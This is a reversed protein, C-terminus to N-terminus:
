AVGELDQSLDASAFDPMDGDQGVLAVGNPVRAPLGRLAAAQRVNVFSYRHEDCPGHAQLAADHEPTCYGKHSAFGYQPFRTDLDRM